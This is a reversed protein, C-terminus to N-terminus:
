LRYHADIQIFNVNTHKDKSLELTTTVQTPRM